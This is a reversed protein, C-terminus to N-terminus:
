RYGFFRTQPAINSQRHLARRHPPYADVSRTCIDYGGYVRRWEQTPSVVRILQHGDLIETTEKTGYQFAHEDSRFSTGAFFATPPGVNPPPNMSGLIAVTQM